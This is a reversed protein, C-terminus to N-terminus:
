GNTREAEGIFVKCMQTLAASLKGSNDTDGSIKLKTVCELMKNLSGQAADFHFRFLALEPSNSLTLEKKLSEVRESLQQKEQVEAALRSEHTAIEKQLSEAKEVAAARDREAKEIKKKLKTEAESRAQEAGEIRAASLMDEDPVASGAVEIPRSRLEELEKRMAELTEDAESQVSHTNDLELKLKLIEDIYAKSTEDAIKTSEEAQEKATIAEDREKILRELERTSLEDINNDEAFGEREGAPVALLMLAKTYTLNGLAQSNLEAGLLGIQKEGYEEFLRMLNNATSHSFEVESKLWEGWEGHGLMAKAEVLRRGIEIAYTLIIQQAQRYITRIETTIVQITRTNTLENM